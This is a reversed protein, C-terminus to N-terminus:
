AAPSWDISFECCDDGRTQCSSERVRVGGAGCLELVKRYFAAACRCVPAEVPPAWVRIDCHSGGNMSVEMRGPRNLLSHLPVMNDLVQRPDQHLYGRYVTKFLSEASYEGIRDFVSDDGGAVERAVADLVRHYMEIPYWGSLIAARVEIRDDEPLSDIVREVAPEGYTDRVFAIKSLIKSGKVSAM